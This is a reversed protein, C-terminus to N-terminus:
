CVKRLYRKVAPSVVDDITVCTDSIDGTVLFKYAAPSLCKMGVGASVLAHVMIKEVTEMMGSMLISVNFVPAKSNDDGIFLQPIEGCGEVMQTFVDNFFQKLVGGTDVAAKSKYQIFLRIRPDFEISKYYALAGELAHEPQARLREKENSLKSSLYSLIEDLTRFIKPKRSDQKDLLDNVFQELESTSRSSSSAAEEADTNISSSSTCPSLDEQVHNSISDAIPPLQSVYKFLIFCVLILYSFM